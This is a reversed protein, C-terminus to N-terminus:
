APLTAPDTPSVGSSIVLKSQPNGDRDRVLTWWSKVMIETGDKTVQRLEGIWDGKEDVRKSGELATTPADGRLLENASRGLAEAASWGYLREASRNWYTVRDELDLVAIADQARDLLVAQTKLKDESRKRETIDRTVSLLHPEGDIMLKEVSILGTLVRGSRIRFRNELDRISGQLELERLMEQRQEPDQWLGLEAVSRGIIDERLYGSMQEFSENVEKIVGDFSAIVM